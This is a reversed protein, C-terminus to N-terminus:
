AARSIARRQLTQWHHERVTALIALGAGLAFLGDAVRLLTDPLAAPFNLGIWLFAGLVALGHVALSRIAALREARYVADLLGRFQREAAAGEGLRIEVVNM